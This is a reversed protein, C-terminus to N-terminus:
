DDRGCQLSQNLRIRYVGHGERRSVFYIDRGNPAWTAYTDNGGHTLRRLIHGDPRMLYLDNQGPRNGRDSSFVIHRGDPSWAPYADEGPASALAQESGTSLTLLMVEYNTM